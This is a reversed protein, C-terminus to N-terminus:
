SGFYHIERHCNACVMQCKDLEKRIAEWGRNYSGSISFEKSDQETHHFDLAAACTNYGCRECRGGKYEIARLKLQINRSRTVCSNCKNTRHGRSKDIVYERGCDCAVKDGRGAQDLRRTNHAGFPSCKLCYKRVALNRRKGEIVLRSPFREACNNCIPM